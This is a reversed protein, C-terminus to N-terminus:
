VLAAKRIPTVNAAPPNLIRSILAALKKLADRKEPVYDHRNYTEIITEQRHGLVREAIESDVRARAMLSRGTRRLDHFVWPDIPKGVAGKIAKDLMSKARSFGNFHGKTRGAFVFDNGEIRLQARIVDLAM